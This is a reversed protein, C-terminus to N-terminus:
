FGLRRGVAFCSFTDDGRLFFGPRFRTALLGPCVRHCVSCIGFVFWGPRSGRRAFPSGALRRRICASGQVDLCLRLADGGDVGRCQVPLFALRVVGCFALPPSFTCSPPAFLLLPSSCPTVFPVLFVRSLVRFSCRGRSADAMLMYRVDVTVCPQIRSSKTKTEVHVIHIICARALHRESLIRAECLFSAATRPVTFLFPSSDRWGREQDGGGGQRAGKEQHCCVRLRSVDQKLTPKRRLEQGAYILSISPPVWSFCFFPTRSSPWTRRIRLIAAQKGRRFAADVFSRRRRRRPSSYQPVRRAAPSPVGSRVAGHSGEKRM